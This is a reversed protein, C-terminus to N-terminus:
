AGFRKKYEAAIEEDTVDVAKKAKVLEEFKTLRLDTRLWAKRDRVLNKQYREVIEAQSLVKAM